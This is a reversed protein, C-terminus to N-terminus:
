IMLRRNVLCVETSTKKINLTSYASPMLTLYRCVNLVIVENYIGSKNDVCVSESLIKIAVGTSDLRRRTGSDRFNLLAPSNECILVFKYFIERLAARRRVAQASSHRPLGLRL